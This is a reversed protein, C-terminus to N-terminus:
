LAAFCHACAIRCMLRVRCQKGHTDAYLGAPCDAVCGLASQFNVCAECSREDAGHCGVCESHCAQCLGAADPYTNAPCESVCSTGNSYRACQLACPGPGSGCCTVGLGLIKWNSSKACCQWSFPGICHEKCEANCPRCVFEEDPYMGSPCAAVCEKGLRFNLCVNCGFEDGSTCGDSGCQEHCPLCLISGQQFYSGVPCVSVCEERFQYNRCKGTAGYTCM